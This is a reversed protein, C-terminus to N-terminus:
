TELFRETTPGAWGKGFLVLPHARMEDARNLGRALVESRSNKVACNCCGIAACCSIM